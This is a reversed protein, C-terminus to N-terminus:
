KVLAVVQSQSITVTFSGKNNSWEHGDMPGLFLRTAGAPVKFQQVTGSSTLGDGIFFPQKLALSNYTTADRSATTSYDKSAPAASTNPASDNLFLGLLSCIPAQIDAVGNEAAPTPGGPSDAGHSYIESTRGDGGFGVSSTPSNGVSGTVSTFTLYTGASGAPLTIARPSEDPASDNYSATAGAAMGALWPDHRGSVTYTQAPVTVVAAVATASVDCTRRGLVAALALPVPNGRATTRAMVVQVAPPTFTGPTFTKTAADWKGWTVTAHPQVGGGADVPNYAATALLPGFSAATSADYAQYTALCGRATADAAKQLDTKVAQVRAYDVALSGLAILAVLAIVAYVMVLGPRRRRRAHTAPM